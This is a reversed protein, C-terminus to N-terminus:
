KFEELTKTNLEFNLAIHELEGKWMSAPTKDHMGQLRILLSIKDSKDVKSIVKFITDMLNSYNQFLCAINTSEFKPDYNEEPIMCGVVCKNGTEKNWYVCRENLNIAQANQTLLHKAITDFIEQIDM